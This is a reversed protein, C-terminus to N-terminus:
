QILNYYKLIGMTNHGIHVVTSLFFTGTLERFIAYQLGRVAHLLINPGNEVLTQFPSYQWLGFSIANGSLRGAQMLLGEGEAASIWHYDRYFYESIVPGFFCVYAILVVKIVIRLFDSEITEAWDLAPQPEELHAASSESALVSNTLAALSEM